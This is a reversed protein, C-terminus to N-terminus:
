KKSNVSGIIPNDIRSMRFGRYHFEELQWKSGNNVFLFEMDKDKNKVVIRHLTGDEVQSTTYSNVQIDKIKDKLVYQYSDKLQGNTLDLMVQNLLPIFPYTSKDLEAKKEKSDLDTIEMSSFNYTFAEHDSGIRESYNSSLPLIKDGEQKYSGLEIVNAKVFLFSGYARSKYYCTSDKCSSSMIVQGLNVPGIDVSFEGNIAEIAQSFGAFSYATLVFLIKSNTNLM